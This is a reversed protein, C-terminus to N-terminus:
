TEDALELVDQELLITLAVERRISWTLAPPGWDPDHYGFDFDSPSLVFQGHLSEGDGVHFIVWETTHEGLESADAATASDLVGELQLAIVREEAARDSFPTVHVSVREGIYGQLASLTQAFDLREPADTV